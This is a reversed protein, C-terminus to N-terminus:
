IGGVLASSTSLNTGLAWIEQGVGLDTLCDSSPMYGTGHSAAWAYFPAMALTTVSTVPTVASFETKYNTGGDIAQLTYWSVGDITVTTGSHALGLSSYSPTANLYVAVNANIAPKSVGTSCNSSFESDILADAKTGTVSSMSFAWTVSPAVTSEAFPGAWGTTCYGGECGQELDPYNLVSGTYAGASQTVDYNMASGTNSVCAAGSGNTFLVNQHGPTNGDTVTTWTTSGAPCTTAFAPAATVAAPIIGLGATLAAAAMLSRARALRM